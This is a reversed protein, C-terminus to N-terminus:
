ASESADSESSNLTTLFAPILLGLASGGYSALIGIIPLSLIMSFESARNKKLAVVLGVGVSFPISVWAGAAAGASFGEIVGAMGLLMGVLGSILGGLLFYALYFGLAQSATRKAGFTTLQKFM